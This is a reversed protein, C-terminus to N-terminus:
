LCNRLCVVFAKELFVSVGSTSCKNDQCSAYSSDAKGCIRFEMSKDEGDWSRKPKVFWGCKPTDVMHRIIDHTSDFVDQSAGLCHRSVEHIANLEM